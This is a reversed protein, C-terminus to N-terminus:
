SDSARARDGRRDQRREEDRRDPESGRRGAGVADRTVADRRHVRVELFAERAHADRLREHAFVAVLLHEGLDGGVVAVGAHVRLPEDRDVEREDVEEGVDRRADHEAGAAHEDRLPESDTPSSIANRSYRLRNKAGIWCSECTNSEYWCAADRDLADALQEDVGVVTGGGASGTM